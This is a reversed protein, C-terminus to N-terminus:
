TSALRDKVLSKLLEVSGHNDIEQDFQSQAWHWESPHVGQPQINKNRYGVFWDPLKGRKVWWVEGNLQQIMSVENPFRVDCIVYNKDPSNLIQKKVSIVWVDNHFGQRMVETGFLQLILRPTVSKGLEQSWFDDTSERWQRSYDTDGELLTRDWDFMTAVIDKLKDAFSIKVFGHENALIDGVTGKGSGILGCVGIIV